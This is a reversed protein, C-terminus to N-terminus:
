LCAVVVSLAVCRHHNCVYSSGPQRSRRARRLFVSSRTGERKCESEGLMMNGPALMRSVGARLPPACYETFIGLGVGTASSTPVM